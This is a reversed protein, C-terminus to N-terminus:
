RSRGSAQRSHAMPADFNLKSKALERVREPTSASIDLSLIYGKAFAASSLSSGKTFHAEPTLLTLEFYDNRYQHGSIKGEAYIASIDKFSDQGGAPLGLLCLVAILPLHKRAIM